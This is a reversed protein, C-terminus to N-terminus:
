QTLDCLSTILATNQHRLKFLLSPEYFSKKTGTSCTSKLHPAKSVFTKKIAAKITHSIINITFYDMYIPLLGPARGKPTVGANPEGHVTIMSADPFQIHDSFFNFQRMHNTYTIHSIKQISPVFILSSLKPFITCTM